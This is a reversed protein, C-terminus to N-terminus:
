KEPVINKDIDVVTRAGNELISSKKMLKDKFIIIETLSHGIVLLLVGREKEEEDLVSVSVSVGSFHVEDLLLGAHDVCKTLSRIKATPVTTVFAEAELKIGYLGLPNSLSCSGGDICFGKITRGVISRELPLKIMTTMDLCKEIDYKTIERPNRALAIMGRSLETKIDIGKTIAFVKKPVKGGKKQETKEKIAAIDSVVKNIDIIEGNKVGHSFTNELSNISVSGDTGISATALAIRNSGLDIVAINKKM